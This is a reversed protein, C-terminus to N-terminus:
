FLNDRARVFSVRAHCRLVSMPVYLASLKTLFICVCQGQFSAYLGAEWVSGHATDGQVNYPHTYCMEPYTILYTNTNLVITRALYQVRNRIIYCDVHTVLYEEGESFTPRGIQKQNHIDFSYTYECGTICVSCHNYCDIFSGVNCVV